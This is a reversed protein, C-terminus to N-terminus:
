KKIVLYVPKYVLTCSGDPRCPYDSLVRRVAGRPDANRIGNVGTDSLHRLMQQVSDFDLTIDDQAAVVVVGGAVEAMRCLADLGPLVLGSGTIDALAKLNDPSFTSLALVGGPRLATLAHEIFRAPSQFWQMTSASIILDYCEPEVEAIAQEADCCVFHACKPMDSWDYEVLDWLELRAGPKLSPTYLKTLVGTGCGAELVRNLSTNIEQSTYQWLRAAVARQMDAHDHYTAKAKRFVKAVLSKDLILRAILARFDPWHGCDTEFVITTTGAWARRQAEVPFIADNRGVVAYDWTFVAHPQREVESGFAALEAILEDVPRASMNNSCFDAFEAASICMRRYFKRLNRDNMGALTGTFIAPAIGRNEDIPTTTGNIAIRRGIRDDAFGGLVRSAAYVGFSWAVVNVCKYQLLLTELVKTESIDRYDYVVAVDCDGCDVGRLVSADMGWGAFLLLLTSSQRTETLEIQM